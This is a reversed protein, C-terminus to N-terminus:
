WTPSPARRSRARRPGAWAPTGPWPRRRPSNRRRPVVRAQGTTLREGMEVLRAEALLDIVAHSDSGLSLPCGAAALARAPGIGDALDAETTPCLCAVTRSGGLLGIDDGTLHTAHVM